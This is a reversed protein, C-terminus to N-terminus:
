EPAFKHVTTFIIGGTETNKLLERLEERSEAQLPIQDKFLAKSDTFTGFLQGDLDTRDTVFVLTPNNMESRQTLKGAYCCMSISKGSGQTHWVVGAKKDGNTASAKITAEVAQRVAHFQHYGAIKKITTKNDSNLLIIFYRIYDLLLEPSFFGRVMTELRWELLPKDKESSVTRWPMFREKNATLSGIRANLGDSIILAENFIFLDLIEDKYTQIQEYAEWIKTEKAFPEKLEIVAIPLGNIFCIMDPRRNCKTGKITFQNVVLFHNNNLNSFDILFAHDKIIEDDKKYLVPVGKILM